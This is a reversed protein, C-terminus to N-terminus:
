IFNQEAFTLITKTNIFKIYYGDEFSLVYLDGDPGIETIGGFGTAFILPDM